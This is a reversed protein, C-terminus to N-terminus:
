DNLGWHRHPDGEAETQTTENLAPERQHLREVFTLSERSPDPPWECFFRICRRETLDRLGGLSEALGRRQGRPCSFRGRLVVLALDADAQGKAWIDVWELGQAPLGRETGLELMLIDHCGFDRLAATFGGPIQLVDMRWLALCFQVEGDLRTTLQDFFGKAQCGSNFDDYLVGAKLTTPELVSETPEFPAAMRVSTIRKM